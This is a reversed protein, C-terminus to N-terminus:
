SSMHYHPAMRPRTCWHNSDNGEVRGFTHHTVFKTTTHRHRNTKHQMTNSQGTKREIMNCISLTIRVSTKNSGEVDVKTNTTNVTMLNKTKM